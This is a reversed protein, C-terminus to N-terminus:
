GGLTLREYALELTEVGISSESSKLNPASWKVPYARDLHWSKLTRAQSDLLNITVNHRRVKGDTMGEDHWQWFQDSSTVGRKLTVNGYKAPGAFKMVRDNEGGEQYDVVKREAKLGTCETFFGTIVGNMELSFRYVVFPEEGMEEIPNMGRREGTVTRSRALNGFIGNIAM